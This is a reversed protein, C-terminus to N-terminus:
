ADYDLVVNGSMTIREEKTNYFPYVLHNLDARFFYIVGEYSPNLPLFDEKIGGKTFYNPTLFSTVGCRIDSIKTKPFLKAQEEFSYPIKIFIIYSFIGIHIHMPNFENEKQFNIWSMGLKLNVFEPNAKQNLIQDMYSQFLDTRTIINLIYENIDKHQNLDILVEKQINGVLYQNWDKSAVNVLGKINSFISDPIKESFVGIHNLNKM